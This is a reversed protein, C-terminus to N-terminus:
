HITRNQHEEYDNMAEIRAEFYRIVHELQEAVKLSHDDGKEILRSRQEEVLEIEERYLEQPTIQEYM